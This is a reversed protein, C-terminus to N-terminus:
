AAIRLIPEFEDQLREVTRLAYRQLDPFYATLLDYAERGPAIEFGDSLFVVTRRDLANSLQGILFRFQRLFGVTLERDLEAIEQARRPVRDKGTECKLKFLVEGTKAYTDCAVRTENLDRRYRELEARLGGQQGDLFIKQFKASQLAALVANPDRSVNVIMEPSTGLAIAVYQSDESHEQRFLKLLAERASVFNNFSAHLTDILILYTRRPSTKVGTPPSAPVVASGATATGHTATGTAPAGSHEVSFATIKQEVGDEFVRFDGQTLGTVHHGDPDTVVVPVLVQRVDVRITTEPLTVANEAAKVLRALGADAPALGSAVRLEEIGASSQGTRALAEALNFRANADRPALKVASRFEELAAKANGTQFLAIGLFNHAAASDPMKDVAERLEIAADAEDGIAHLALGLQYHLGPLDPNLRLAQQLVRVAEAPKTQILQAGRAMLDDARDQAGIGITLSMLLAGSVLLRM